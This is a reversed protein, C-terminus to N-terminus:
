AIFLFPTNHPWSPPFSTPPPLLVQRLRRPPRRKAGACYDGSQEGVSDRNTPTLPASSSSGAHMGADVDDLPAFSARRVGVQNPTRLASSAQGKSVADAAADTQVDTQESRESQETPEPRRHADNDLRTLLLCNEEIAEPPPLQKLIWDEFVPYMKMIYYCDQESLALLNCYTLARTTHMSLNNHLFTEAGIAERYVFTRQVVNHGDSQVLAGHRVFHMKHVAEGYCSVLGDPMFVEEVLSSAITHRCALPATRFFPLENVFDLTVFLQISDNMMPTLQRLNVTSNLWDHQYALIEMQMLNPVQVHGMVSITQLMTKRRADVPSTRQMALTLMGVIAGNAVVGLACLFIAFAQKATHDVPVDGYGVAQLTYLVFYAANIYTNDYAAERAPHHNNIMIWAVFLAHLIMWAIAGGLLLPITRYFWKVESASLLNKRSVMFFDTISVLRLLRLHSAVFFATHTSAASGGRTAVAVAVLDFPFAGLFAAAARPSKVYAWNVRASLAAWWSKQEDDSLCESRVSEAPLSNFSMRLSAERCLPSADVAFAACEDEDPLNGDQKMDAEQEETMTACCVGFDAVFVVTMVGQLYWVAQHWEGKASEHTEMAYGYTTLCFVYVTSLLVAVRWPNLRPDDPLFWRRLLANKIHRVTSAAPHMVRLKNTENDIKVLLLVDDLTFSEKDFLVEVQKTIEKLSTFSGVSALIETLEWIDVEGARETDFMEFLRTVEQVADTSLENLADHAETTTLFGSRHTTVGAGARPTLGGGGRPGPSACLGIGDSETPLKLSPPAMSRARPSPGKGSEPLMTAQM